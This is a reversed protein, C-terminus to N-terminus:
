SRTVTVKRLLVRKSEGDPTTYDIIMERDGMDIDIDIDGDDLTLYGLIEAVGDQVPYLRIIDDLAAATRPPVIARINRALRATDVYRQAFLNDLESESDDDPALMSDVISEPQTDYLPREMPLVIPVGPADVTLGIDRPAQERVDLAAAEVARVLEMVRRNEIWVQDDLFRRLQESLTRVTQQTREAAESWDHHVTRLRRDPVIQPISQVTAILHALEDQSGESLLYDHFAQFSRGQDSSTIDTRSRLLEALLDGKGGEWSAIKERASRDLTRFNEEVERFDNLLDRATSAVQQYRDRLAADDLVSFNGLRAQALEADLADRRRELEAIRSDPDTESGRVIQRLLEVVTQLRSETGIFSRSRLNEVWAHAKQLAPTAEYHVENSGVPYYARLWGSEPGAWDDLYTSPNATYRDPEARHVSYLYDDLATVLRGAPTPGRNNEVFYEGLFSLVLPANRARLLRWAPHREWLLAIDDLDMDRRAYPRLVVSSM